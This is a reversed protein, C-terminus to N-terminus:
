LKPALACPAVHAVNYRFTVNIRPDTSDTAKAIQHLYHKQFLGEMTALHGHELWVSEISGKEPMLYASGVMRPARLGVQFKRAAGLSVSIICADQVKGQFLEEDDAHWSVAQSGGEYLNINACDPMGLKSDKLKLKGLWRETMEDFWAPFQVAPCHESGYEYPCTCGPRTFWMVKRTVNVDAGWGSTLTLWPVKARLVAFDDLTVAPEKALYAWSRLQPKEIIAQWALGPSIEKVLTLSKAERSPEVTADRAASFAESKEYNAKKRAESKALAQRERAVELTVYHAMLAKEIENEDVHPLKTKAMALFMKPLTGKQLMPIYSAIVKEIEPNPVYSADKEKEKAPESDAAAALAALPSVYPASRNNRAASGWVTGTHQPAGYM